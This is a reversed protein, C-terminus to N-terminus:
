LKLISVSGVSDLDMNEEDTISLATSSRGRSLEASGGSSSLNRHLTPSGDVAAGSSSAPPPAEATKSRKRILLFPLPLNHVPNTSKLNCFIGHNEMVKETKEM